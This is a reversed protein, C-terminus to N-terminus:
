AALTTNINDELTGKKADYQAKQRNHLQNARVSGFSTARTSLLVTITVLLWLSVMGIGAAPTFLWSPLQILSNSQCFDLSSRNGPQM